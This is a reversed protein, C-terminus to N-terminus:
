QAKLAMGTSALAASLSRDLTQRYSAARQAAWLRVAAERASDDAPRAQACATAFAEAHDAVQVHPLMNHGLGRLAHGTAVVARAAALAEIAKEHVGSGSLSPIAVVDVSGYFARVDAVRGLVQVRPPLALGALGTGALRLVCHAPLRPLICEIMWDLAQRNPGWTWTGLLGIRHEGGAVGSGGTGPPPTVGYPFGPLVEVAARAGCANARQQLRAADGESLCAVVAARQLVRQELGHLLRAERRFVAAQLPQGAAAATQAREAYGESELNHMVVLPAPLAPQAAAVWAYAQLHDVVLLDLGERRQAELWRRAQAQAGGATLRQVTSAQGAVWAALLSGAQQVRPLAAFVPASPGLSTVPGIGPGMTAHRPGRGLVQVRHGAGVLQALLRATCIEGGNRPQDFLQTTVFAVKM